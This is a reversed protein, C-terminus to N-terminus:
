RRSVGLIFLACAFIYMYSSSFGNTSWRNWGNKSNANLVYVYSSLIHQNRTLEVGFVFVSKKGGVVITMVMTTRIICTFTTKNHTGHYIKYQLQTQNQTNAGRRLNIVKSYSAWMKYRCFFDFFFFLPMCDNLKFLDIYAISPDFSVNFLRRLLRSFLFFVQQARIWGPYVSHQIGSRM